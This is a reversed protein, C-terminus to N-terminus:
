LKYLLAMILFIPTGACFSDLRDLVGGHGPLLNGSDKVGVTRKLLSEFLDGFVSFIFTVTTIIIVQYSHKVYFKNFFIIYVGVVLLSILYGGLVGEWTKLPSIPTLKHRGFLKGIIYAGIDAAIIILFCLILLDKNYVHMYNIALWSPILAFICSLYNYILNLNFFKLKISKQTKIFSAFFIIELCAIAWFGVAVQMIKNIIFPNLWYSKTILFCIVFLIAIHSINYLLTNIFKSNHNNLLHLWELAAIIMITSTASLFVETSAYFVLWAFLPLLISVTLIRDKYM